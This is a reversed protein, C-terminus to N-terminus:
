KSTIKSLINYFFWGSVKKRRRKTGGAHDAAAPFFISTASSAFISSWKCQTMKVKTNEKKGKNRRKKKDVGPNWSMRILGFRFRGVETVSKARPSMMGGSNCLLTVTDCLKSTCTSFQYTRGTPHFTATPPQASRQGFLVSFFFRM